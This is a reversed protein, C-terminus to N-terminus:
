PASGEEPAGLGSGMHGRAGCCDGMVQIEGAWEMGPGVEQHTISVTGKPGGKGSHGRAKDRRARGGLSQKGQLIRGWWGSGPLSTPVARGRM